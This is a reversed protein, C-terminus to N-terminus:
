NVLLMTTASPRLLLKFTVIANLYYTLIILLLNYYQTKQLTGLM